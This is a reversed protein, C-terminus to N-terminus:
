RRMSFAYSVQVRATCSVRRLNPEAAPYEPAANWTIEGVDVGRVVTLQAGLVAAAAEAPPYANEVARAVAQAALADTDAVELLPPLAEAGAEAALAEVSAMLEAFAPAGKDPSVFPAASFRLRVTREVTAADYGPLATATVEIESPTLNRSELQARVRQELDVLKEAAGALDAADPVVAKLWFTVHAPVGHATGVGSATIWPEEAPQAHLPAAMAALVLLGYLGSMVPRKHMTIM